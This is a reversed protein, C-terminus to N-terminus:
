DAISLRGDFICRSVKVRGSGTTRDLMGRFPAPPEQSFPSNKERKKQHTRGHRPVDAGDRDESRHIMVPAPLRDREAVPLSDSGHLAPLVYFHVDGGAFMRKGRIVGLGANIEFYLRAPVVEKPDDARGTRETLIARELKGIRHLCSLLNIAQFWELGVLDSADTPVSCAPLSQSGPVTIARCRTAQM